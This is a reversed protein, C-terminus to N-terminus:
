PETLWIRVATFQKAAELLVARKPDPVTLFREAALAFYPALRPDDRLDAVARRDGGLVVADLRTPRPQPRGDAAAGRTTARKQSTSRVTAGAPGFIMVAADAAASLAENAQKERRRAFRHQSWGGAASRGHVPRSGVKADGLVPPYGTFVGAAYGGLRVLLVGVTRPKRAHAALAEAIAAPDDPGGQQGFGAAAPHDFVDPDQLRSPPTVEELLATMGGAPPFPPYCQAVAGDQATISIHDDGVAVTIAEGSATGADSVGHRVAFSAIWGPLREASVELWKGGSGAVNKV